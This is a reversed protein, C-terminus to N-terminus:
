KFIFDRSTHLRTLKVTGTNKLNQAHYVLDGPTVFLAELPMDYGTIELLRELLEVFKATLALTKNLEQPLLGVHAMSTDSGQESSVLLEYLEQMLGDSIAIGAPFSSIPLIPPTFTNDKALDILRISGPAGDVAQSNFVCGNEIRIRYDGGCDYYIQYVLQSCIMAPTDDQYIISNIIKDLAYCASSLILDTIKILPSSPYIKKFILLGALIFLAPFDYRVKADLYANASRILPAADLEPNLRMVYVEDGESIGIEHVGIGSAGVEIISDGSYVMAAHCVDTKTFWAIAKSLPDDEAKFVVIDGKKLNYKM